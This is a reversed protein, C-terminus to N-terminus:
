DFLGKLPKDDNKLYKGFKGEIDGM